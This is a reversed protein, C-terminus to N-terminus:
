FVLKTLCVTQRRSVNRFTDIVKERSLKLKWSLREGVNNFDYDLSKLSWRGRANQPTFLHTQTKTVRAWFSRTFAHKTHLMMADDSSATAEVVMLTGDPVLVRWTDRLVLVPDTMCCLSYVIRAEHVCEDNLPMAHADALVDPSFVPDYDLGIWGPEKVAGSGVDLRRPEPFRREFDSQIFSRNLKGGSKKRILLLAEPSPQPYRSLSVVVDDLVDPEVEDDSPSM